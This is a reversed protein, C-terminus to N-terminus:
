YKIQNEIDNLIEDFTNEDMKLYWKGQPYMVAAAGLSCKGLCGASNIRVSKGWKEKCHAKLNKKLESSDIISNLGCSAKGNEKKHECIFVHVKPHDSM